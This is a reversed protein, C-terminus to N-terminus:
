NKIKELITNELSKNKHSTNNTKKDSKDIKLIKELENKQESIQENEFGAPEPLDNFDPPMSLPNKKEVLFEDNTDSRTKGTFADGGCSTVFLLISLVIIINKNSM